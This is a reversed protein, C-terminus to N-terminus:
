FMYVHLCTKTRLTLDCSVGKVLTTTVLTLLLISCTVTHTGYWSPMHKAAEPPKFGINYLEDPDMDDTSAM